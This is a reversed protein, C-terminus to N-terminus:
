VGAGVEKEVPNKGERSRGEGTMNELGIKKVGEPPHLGIHITWPLIIRLSDTETRDPNPEIIWLSVSM